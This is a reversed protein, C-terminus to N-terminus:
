AAFRRIANALTELNAPPQAFNVVAWAHHCGAATALRAFVPRDRDPHLEIIAAGPPCFVLNALGAGHPGAVVAADRLFRIQEAPPLGALEVREFEPLQALLVDEWALDRSNADRRSIWLRRTGVPPLAHHVTHRIADILWPTPECDCSLPSTFLLQECRYHSLGELWIIKERPIGALLLWKEQFGGARGPALVHDIQELWPRALELRPLSEILFHYFGGADLSGLSLTVGRLSQAPPFGPAALLPHATPPKLWVRVTEEVAVRRRPCYVVGDDGAIAVDTLTLLRRPPSLRNGAKEGSSDGQPLPPGPQQGLLSHTPGYVCSDRAASALVGNVGKAVSNGTSKAAAGPFLEDFPQVAHPGHGTLRNLLKKLPVTM